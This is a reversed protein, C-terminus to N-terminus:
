ILPEHMNIVHDSLRPGPFLRSSNPWTVSYGSLKPINYSGFNNDLEYSNEWLVCIQCTIM